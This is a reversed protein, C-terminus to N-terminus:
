VLNFIAIKLEANHNFNKDFFINLYKFIVSYHSIGNMLVPAERLLELAVSVKYMTYDLHQALLFIHTKFCVIMLM